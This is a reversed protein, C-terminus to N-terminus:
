ECIDEHLQSVFLSFPWHLFSHFFIPSYRFRTHVAFTTLMLQRQGFVCRGVPQVYQLRHYYLHPSYEFHCDFVSHAVGDTGKEAINEGNNECKNSSTDVLRDALWILGRLLVERQWHYVVASEGRDLRGKSKGERRGVECRRSVYALMCVRPLTTCVAEIKVVGRRGGGREIGKEASEVLGEVGGGGTTVHYSSTPSPSPSTTSYQTRINGKESGRRRRKRKKAGGGGSSPLHPRHRPRIRTPLAGGQKEVGRKDVGGKEGEGVRDISADGRDLCLYLTSKTPTSPTSATPSSM